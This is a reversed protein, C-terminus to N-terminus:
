KKDDLRAIVDDTIDVSGDAYLVKHTRVTMMFEQPNESPFAPESNELIMELGRKEAITKTALIIDKYLSEAWLQDKYELQKRYFDRQAQLSARQVMVERTQEMYEESDPKLTKLGAEDAEIQVKLKELKKVLSDRESTSTIQYVENRKCKEFVKQVSIVGISSAGKGATPKEEAMSQEYGVLLVVSAILFSLVMVRIKMAVREDNFIM